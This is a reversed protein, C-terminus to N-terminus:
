LLGKEQILFPQQVNKTFTMLGDGTKAASLLFMSSVPVGDYLIGDQLRLLRKGIGVVTQLQYLLGVWSKFGRM